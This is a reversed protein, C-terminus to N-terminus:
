KKLHELSKKSEISDDNVSDSDSFSKESIVPEDIVENKLHNMAM